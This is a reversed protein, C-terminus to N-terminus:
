EILLPSLHTKGEAIIQIFYMGPSLSDTNLIHEKGSIEAIEMVRQGAANTIQIMQLESNSQIKLHDTAPNPFCRVNLASENVIGTSTESTMTIDDVYYLGTNESPGWAFFNLAEFEQLGPTGDANNLSWQFSLAEQDNIKLSSLDNTLDILVQIDNWEGPTYTAAGGDTAGVTWTMNGNAFYVDVAWEYVASTYNWDHLLNFYGEENEPILIKFDITILDQNYEGTSLVIDTGNTFDLKLSNNGSAAYDDSIPADSSLDASTWTYFSDNSAAIQDGVQYEDFNETFLVDQSLISYNLAIASLFLLTKKM